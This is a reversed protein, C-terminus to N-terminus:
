PSEAKKILGLELATGVNDHVWTHCLRCIAISNKVSTISGGASRLVPEHIEMSVKQCNPQHGARMIKPGAECLPRLRLQEHVFTRRKRNLAARKKSVQNIQTRRQIPGGRKLGTKSKLPTKRKLPTRKM